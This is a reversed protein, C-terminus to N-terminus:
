FSFTLTTNSTNNTFNTEGGSGNVLYVSVPTNGRTQGPTETVTFAVRINGNQVIAHTTLIYFNPNSTADITFQSNQVPQGAQNTTQAASFTFNSFSSLKDVYLTITSGNTPANNLENVQVTVEVNSQGIVNNPNLNIRPTLDPVQSVTIYLTASACAQPTGNDCTTYVFSVPGTFGNVPTFTFTGDSNLM